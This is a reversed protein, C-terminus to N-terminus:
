EKVPTVDITNAVVQASQELKGVLAALENVTMEQLPKGTGTGHQADNDVWERMTKVAAVRAAAPAGADNMITILTNVGAVYGETRLRSDALDKILNSYAPRSLLTKGYEKSLGCKGAATDIDGTIAFVYLLVLHHEPADELGRGLALARVQPMVAQMDRDLPKPTHKAIQNSVDESM